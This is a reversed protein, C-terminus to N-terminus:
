SYCLRTPSSDASPASKRLHPNPCTKVLPSTKPDACQSAIRSLDPESGIRSGPLNFLSDESKLSSVDRLEITELTKCFWHELDYCIVIGKKEVQKSIYSILFDAVKGM